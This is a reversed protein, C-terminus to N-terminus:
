KKSNRTSYSMSSLMKSMKGDSYTEGASMLSNLQGIEGAVREDFSFAQASAMSGSLISYAGSRNGKLIEERAEKQKQAIELITEQISIEESVKENSFVEDTATIYSLSIIKTEEIGEKNVFSLKMEGLDFKEGIKTKNEFEFSFMASIERGGIINGVVYKDSVKEIENVCTVKVKKKSIFELSASNGVINNLCSFEEMLIKLAKHGDEIYYANGGSVTAMKELLNENYHDGVGFTSTSIGRQSLGEVHKSIEDASVIGQNTEGDTLVLIRNIMKTSVNKAVEIGSKLWGDHLNTGGNANISLIKNKIKEKSHSNVMVAEQIVRAYNDFTVISIYDGDELLDLCKLAADKVQSLKTNRGYNDNFRGGINKLFDIPHNNQTFIPENGGGNVAENMSGSVDIALSVNLPMRNELISKQKAANLKFLVKKNQKGKKVSNIDNINNFNIM